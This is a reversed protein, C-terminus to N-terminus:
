FTWVWAFTNIINFTYLALLLYTITLERKHDIVKNGENFSVLELHDTLHSSRSKFLYTIKDLDRAALLMTETFSGSWSAVSPTLCFTQHTWSLTVHGFILSTSKNRRLMKLFLLSCLTLLSHFSDHFSLDFCMLTMGFWTKVM